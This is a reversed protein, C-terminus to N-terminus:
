PKVTGTDKLAQKLAALCREAEERTLTITIGNAGIIVFRVSIDGVM